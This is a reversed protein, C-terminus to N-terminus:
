WSWCWEVGRGRVCRDRRCPLRRNVAAATASALADGQVRRSIALLIRDASTEVSGCRHNAMMRMKCMRWLRDRGARTRVRRRDVAQKCV